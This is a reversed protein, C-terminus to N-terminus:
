RKATEPLCLGEPHQWSTDFNGQFLDIIIHGPRDAPFHYRHFAVRETATLEVRVQHDKLWVSYYAPRAIEHHHDYHSAYGASPHSQSGPETRISGTYPMILVDGLDPVGTGNLHNQAFGKVVSDSYNYGSCWDWGKNINGPGPQVAGFPVSAGLFTHGHAGAGIYPDVYSVLLPEKGTASPSVAAAPPTVQAFASLTVCCALLCHLLKM